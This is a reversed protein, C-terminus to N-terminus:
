RNVVLNSSRDPNSWQHLVLFKSGMCLPVSVYTGLVAGHFIGGVSRVSLIYGGPPDLRHVGHATRDCCLKPKRLLRIVIIGGVFATFRTPMISLNHSILRCVKTTTRNPTKLILINPDYTVISRPRHTISISTRVSWYPIIHSFLFNLYHTISVIIHSM